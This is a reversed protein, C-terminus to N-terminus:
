ADSNQARYDCILLGCPRAQDPFAKFHLFFGLTAWSTGGTERNQARCNCILLGCPRAQDPFAGVHLKKFVKLRQMPWLGSTDSRSKSLGITGELTATRHEIIASSFAVPGLKAWIYCLHQKQAM